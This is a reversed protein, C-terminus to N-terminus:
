KSQINSVEKVHKSIIPLLRQKLLRYQIQSPTKLTEKESFNLSYDNDLEVKIRAFGNIAQAFKDRIVDNISDIESKINDRYKMMEDIIGFMKDNDIDEIFKRSQMYERKELFEKPIRFSVGYDFSRSMTKKVKKVAVRTDATAIARVNM